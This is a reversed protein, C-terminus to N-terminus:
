HVPITVPQQTPPNINTNGNAAQMQQNLSEMAAGAQHIANEAAEFTSTDIASGMSTQMDRVSAITLNMADMINNLVPSFNDYLSISSEITAM